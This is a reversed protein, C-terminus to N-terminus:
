LEFDVIPRGKGTHPIFFITLEKSYFLDADRRERRFICGVFKGLTGESQRKQLEEKILDATIM